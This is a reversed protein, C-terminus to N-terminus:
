RTEGEFQLNMFRIRKGRRTFFAHIEDDFDDFQLPGLNRADAFAQMQACADANDTSTLLFDRRRLYTHTISWTIM